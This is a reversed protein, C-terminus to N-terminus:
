EQIYLKKGELKLRVGSLALIRLVESLNLSREMKGSFFRNKLGEDFVVDVDYWRSIQMLIAKVSANKFYFMGNKWAMVEEIDPNNHLIIKGSGNVQAQQSPLLIMQNSEKEVHVKGELLTIAQGDESNYANINFHTGIVDVRTPKGAGNGSQLQVAFPKSADKAVEFYVEGTVEVERHNGRFASPFRISSAANLWVMSGDSLTLQYQGGRPTQLFNYTIEQTTDESKEYALRGDALNIVKANGQETLVGKSLGEDLEIVTGDALTLTAKNSAPSADNIVFEPKGTQKGTAAQYLFYGGFMALILIAAAATYKVIRLVRGRNDEKHQDHRLIAALIQNAREEPQQDTGTFSEMSEAILDRILLDHQSADIYQFLERTEEASSEQAFYQRFLYRIRDTNSM